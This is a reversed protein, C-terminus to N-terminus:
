SVGHVTLDDGLGEKVVPRSRTDLSGLLMSFLLEHLTGNEGYLIMGYYCELNCIQIKMNTAEANELGVGRNTCWVM